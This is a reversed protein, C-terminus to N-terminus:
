LKIGQRAIQYIPKDPDQPTKILLDVKTDCECTLRYETTLASKLDIARTAELFVDIDGGRRADDARSGFLYISGDPDLAGLNARISALEFPRLRM